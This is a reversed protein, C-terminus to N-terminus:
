MLNETRQNQPNQQHQIDSPNQSTKSNNKNNKSQLMANTICLIGLKFYNGFKLVRCVRLYQVIYHYCTHSRVAIKSTFPEDWHQVDNLEQKNYEVSFHKALM